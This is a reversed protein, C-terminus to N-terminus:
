GGVCPAFGYPVDDIVVVHLSGIQVGVPVGDELLTVTAAVVYVVGRPHADKGPPAWTPDTRLTSMTPEMRLTGARLECAQARFDPHQTDQLLKRQETNGKGGAENLRTFYGSVQGREVETIRLPRATGAVSAGCGSLLLACATVLAGVWLHRDGM